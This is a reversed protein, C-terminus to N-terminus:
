IIEPLTSQRESVAASENDMQESIIAPLSCPCNMLPLYQAFSVM